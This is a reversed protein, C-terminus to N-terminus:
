CAHDLPGACQHPHEPDHVRCPRGLKAEEQAAAQRLTWARAPQFAPAFAPLLRGLLSARSRSNRTHAAALHAAPSPRVLAPGM